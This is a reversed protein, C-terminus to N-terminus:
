VTAEFFVSRIIGEYHTGELSELGLALTCTLILILGVLTKRMKGEAKFIATTPIDNFRYFTIEFDLRVGFIQTASRRKAPGCIGGADRNM